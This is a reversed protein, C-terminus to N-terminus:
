PVDKNYFFFDPGNKVGEIRIQMVVHTHPDLDNCSRIFLYLFPWRDLIYAANSQAVEFGMEGLLLYKMLAEDYM